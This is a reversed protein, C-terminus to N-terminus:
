RSFWQGRHSIVGLVKGKVTESVFACNKSSSKISDKDFVREGKDTFLTIDAKQGVAIPSVPLSFRKKAATLMEVTKEVSFHRLMIGLTAELGISGFEALDFEKAKCEIDLPCHDSTVMDIVGSEVGKRLAEVQRADRLPPLLKYDTNFDGLVEDTLHLNSVAVSCSVDLGKAKAAAILAVSKETSITPIHLRGGAYELISLDREVIIEEALAPIGKLGLRTSAIHENVVGKGMISRDCPFSIVMGSFPATYQLAIKLLNAQPIYRKYDGFAVAGASQMDYLEALYEGKSETTLAGIPFIETIAGQTARKLFGVQSRSETIPHTNPNLMVQTFGSECAVKAGHALTEREEYGPEGFSVSSDAWGQSIYCNELVEDADQCTIESSIQKINGDEILVDQTQGHYSSDTDIITVHRLLTKMIGKIKVVFIIM